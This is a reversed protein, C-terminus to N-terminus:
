PKKGSLYEQEVVKRNCLYRNLEHLMRERTEFVVRACGVEVIYGNLVETIVVKHYAPTAVEPLNANEIIRGPSGDPMIVERGTNTDM